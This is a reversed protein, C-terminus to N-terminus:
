EETEKWPIVPDDSDPDPIPGSFPPCNPDVLPFPDPKPGFPGPLPMSPPEPKPKEGCGSVTNIQEKPLVDKNEEM